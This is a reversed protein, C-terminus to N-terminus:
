AAPAEDLTFYMASWVAACFMAVLLFLGGTSGVFFVTIVFAALLLHAVIGARLVSISRQKAFSTWFCIAFYGFPCLMWIIALPSGGSSGSGDGYHGSALGLAM